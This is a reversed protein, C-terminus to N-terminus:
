EGIILYYHSTTDGPICSMTISSNLETSANAVAGTEYYNCGLKFLVPNNNTSTTAIYQDHSALLQSTNKYTTHPQLTFMSSENWVTVPSNTNNNISSDMSVLPWSTAYAKSLGLTTYSLLFFLFIRRFILYNQSM